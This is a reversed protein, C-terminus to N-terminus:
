LEEDERMAGAEVLRKKLDVLFEDLQYDTKGAMSIVTDNWMKLQSAIQAVYMSDLTIPYGAKM